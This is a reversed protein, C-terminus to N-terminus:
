ASPSYNGTAAISPSLPWRRLSGSVFGSAACHLPTSTSCALTRASPGWGSQVASRRARRRSTTLALADCARLLSPRAADDVPVLAAWRSGMAMLSLLVSRANVRQLVALAHTNMGLLRLAAPSVQVVNISPTQRWRNTMAFVFADDIQRPMPAFWGVWDRRLRCPLLAEVRDPVHFVHLFGAWARGRLGPPATVGM